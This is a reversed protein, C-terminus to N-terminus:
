WMKFTHCNTLLWPSVTLKLCARSHSGSCSYSHKTTQITALNHQLGDLALPDRTESGASNKQKDSLRTLSSHTQILNWPGTQFKVWGFKYFWIICLCCYQIMFGTFCDFCVNWVCNFVDGAKNLFFFLCRQIFTNVPKYVLHTKHTMVIRHLLECTSM